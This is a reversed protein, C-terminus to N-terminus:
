PLIEVRNGEFWNNAHWENDGGRANYNITLEEGLAIDRAAIFLLLGELPKARYRLNAPNDHNYLSGYGLPIAWAGPVQALVMWDFVITKLEIPLAAFPSCLLLVPCAEVLEDNAYARLAYVGRGKATGTDRVDADPLSTSLTMAQGVVM